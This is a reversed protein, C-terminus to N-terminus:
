FLYKFKSYNILYVHRLKEKQRRIFHTRYYSGSGGSVGAIIPATHLLIPYLNKEHIIKLFKAEIDLGTNAGIQQHANIFHKEYFNTNTIYFRTDFYHLKTKKVLSLVHQFSAKGLFQGNWERLCKPYNLVWLKATCKVFETSNQLTTSHALAHKIIEGEGYGKGRLKIMEVDNLFFLSEIAVNPFHKKLLPKFDYNSGDCIVLKSKPSIELWKGISELVHFLRDEPANLVGSQDMAIISSTLLIPPNFEESHHKM